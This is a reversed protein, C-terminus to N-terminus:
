LAIGKGGVVVVVAAAPSDEDQSSFEGAPTSSASCLESEVRPGDKQAMASRDKGDAAAPQRIM